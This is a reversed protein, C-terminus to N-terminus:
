ERELSVNSVNSGICQSSVLSCTVVFCSAGLDSFIPAGQSIPIVQISRVHDMQPINFNLISYVSTADAKVVTNEHFTRGGTVTETGLISNCTNDSYSKIQTSDSTRSNAGQSTINYIAAVQSDDLKYNHYDIWSSLDAWSCLSIFSLIIYFFKISFNVKIM